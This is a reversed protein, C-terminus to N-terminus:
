VKRPPDFERWKCGGDFLAPAQAPPFENYPCYARHWRPEVPHSEARWFLCLAAFAAICLTWLALNTM